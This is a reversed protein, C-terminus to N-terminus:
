RLWYRKYHIHYFWDIIKDKLSRKTLGSGPTCVIHNFHEDNCLRDILDAKGAEVLYENHTYSEIDQIFVKYQKGYKIKM